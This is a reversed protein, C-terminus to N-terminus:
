IRTRKALHGFIYCIFEMFALVVSNNFKKSKLKQLLQENTSTDLLSM